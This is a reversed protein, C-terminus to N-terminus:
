ITQHRKRRKDIKDESPKTKELDLKDKLEENKKDIDKLDEKIKDFQENLKKQEAKNEEKNANKDLTNKKLDEQAKALKELKDATENIKKELTLQKLQEQLRDMDKAMDKDAMNMKDLEKKIGEKNEQKLLEELKKLLEQLEPSLTEKFMKDLEKMKEEVKNEEKKFEKERTRNQEQEKKIDSVENQLEKQKQILQALKQKEQWDMRSSQNMKVQLDKTMQQVQKAAQMAKEMRAIIDSTTNQTIKELEEATPAKYVIIDSKASKAGNVGDNDFVQFYCSIKAGLDFVLTNLDLVTSFVANTSGRTFSVEKSMALSEQGEANTIRYIFKINSIGYDDNATGIFYLVKASVSDTKQIASIAPYKDKIVEIKYHLSDTQKLVNNSLVLSYSSNDLVRKQYFNEGALPKNNFLFQLKDTNKAILNWSIETGEPVTLDTTNNIESATKNLYKPYNLKINIKSVFPAGLVKITFYESIFDGAKFRINLDNQLNTIKQVFQKDNLNMKIWEKDLEIYAEGPIKEGILRLKATFDNGKKQVTPADFDFIFPAKQLFVQNYKLLRESGEFFVNSQFVLMTLLLVLAATAYKATRFSEKKNIAKTFVFPKMELMKQHISAVLLGNESNDNTLKDSLQLTNILKDDIETFHNGIIKAADTNSLRNTKYGYLKLLPVFIYKITICATAVILLYFLTTRLTTGLQGNFAFFIFLLYVPLIVAILLGFGMFLQNKYYKKIFTALASVLASQYNM